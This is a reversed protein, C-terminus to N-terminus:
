DSCKPWHPCGDEGVGNDPAGDGNPPLDGREPQAAPATKKPLVADLERDNARHAKEAAARLVERSVRGPDASVQVLLGNEARAYEHRSTASRYWSAGDQECREAEPQVTRCNKANVTGRDVTLALQAGEKAPGGKEAVYVIQFGDENMVGASQTAARFGDAETVYVHEVRTQAALARKVLEAHDPASSAGGSAPASGGSAPATGEASESGCAALPLLLLLPLGRILRRM